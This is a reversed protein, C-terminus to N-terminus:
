PKFPTGPMSSPNASNPTNKKKWALTFGVHTGNDYEHVDFNQMETVDIHGSNMMAFMYRAIVNMKDLQDSSMPGQNQGPNNPMGFMGGM